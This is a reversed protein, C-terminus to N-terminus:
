HVPNFPLPDVKFDYYFNHHTALAHVILSGLVYVVPHCGFLTGVHCVCADPLLEILLNVQNNNM